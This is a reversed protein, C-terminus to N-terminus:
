SHSAPVCSFLFLCRVKNQAAPEFWWHNYLRTRQIAFLVMVFFVFALPAVTVVLLRDHFNTEPAVCNVPLLAIDFSVFVNITDYHKSFSEPLEFAYLTTV